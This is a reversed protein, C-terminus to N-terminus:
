VQVQRGPHAPILEVDVGLRQERLQRARLVQPRERRRRRGHISPVLATDARQRTIRASHPQRSSAVVPCHPDPLDQRPALHPLQLSSLVSLSNIRDLPPRASVSSDQSNRRINDEGGREGGELSM